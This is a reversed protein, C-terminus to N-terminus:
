RSFYYKASHEGFLEEVEELERQIVEPPGKFDISIQGERADEFQFKASYPTGRLLIGAYIRTSEFAERGGIVDKAPGVAHGNNRSPSYAWLTGSYRLSTGREVDNRAAIISHLKYEVRINRAGIVPPTTNVYMELREVINALM